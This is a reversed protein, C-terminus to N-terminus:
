TRWWGGFDYLVDRDLKEIKLTEELETRIEEEEFDKPKDQALALQPILVAILLGWFLNRIYYFM